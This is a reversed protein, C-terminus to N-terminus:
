YDRHVTNQDLDFLIRPQEATLNLDTRDFYNSLLSESITIGRNEQLWRAVGSVKWEDVYRQEFLMDNVAKCLQAEVEPNLALIGGAIQM